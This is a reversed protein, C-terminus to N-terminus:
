KTISPSQADGCIRPATKLCMFAKQDCYLNWKSLQKIRSLKEHSSTTYHFRIRQKPVVQRLQTDKHVDTDM